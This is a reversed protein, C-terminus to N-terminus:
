TNKPSVGVLRKLNLITQTEFNMQRVLRAYPDDLGATRSAKAAVDFHTAAEELEQERLAEFGLEAAERMVVAANAKARSSQVSIMTGIVLGVIAVLVLRFPTVIRRVTGAKAKISEKAKSASADARQKIKVKIDAVQDGIGAFPSVALNKSRGKQARTRSKKKKPKPRPYVDNPLVFFPEGCEKCLVRRFTARREGKIEQGCPCKLEFPQSTPVIPNTGAINKAKALWKSM